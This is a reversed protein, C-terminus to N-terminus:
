AARHLGDMLLKITTETHRKCLPTVSGSAALDMPEQRATAAFALVAPQDCNNCSVALTEPLDCLQTNGAFTVNQHM